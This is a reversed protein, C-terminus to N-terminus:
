ERKDRGILILDLFGPPFSRVRSFVSVRKFIQFLIDDAVTTPKRGQKRVIAFYALLLGGRLTTQKQFM